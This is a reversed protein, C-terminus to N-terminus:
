CQHTPFTDTSGLRTRRLCHVILRATFLAGQTQSWSNESFIMDEISCGSAFYRCKGCLLLARRTLRIKRRKDERYRGRWQYRGLRYPRWVVLWTAFWLMLHLRWVQRWDPLTKLSAPLRLHRELALFDKVRSAVFLLAEWLGVQSVARSISM